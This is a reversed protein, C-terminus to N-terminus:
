RDKQNAKAVFGDLLGRIELGCFLMGYVEEKTLPLKVPKKATFDKIMIVHLLPLVGLWEYHVNVDKMLVLCFEKM